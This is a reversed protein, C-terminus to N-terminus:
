IEDVSKSPALLDNLSFDYVLCVPLFRRRLVCLPVMHANVSGSHLDYM